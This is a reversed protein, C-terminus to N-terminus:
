HQVVLRRKFILVDFVGGYDLVSVRIDDVPVTSTKTLMEAVMTRM